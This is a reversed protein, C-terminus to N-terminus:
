IILSMIVKMNNSGGMKDYNGVSRVLYLDSDFKVQNGEVFLSGAPAFVKKIINADTLGWLQIMKQYAGQDTLDQVDCKVTSSDAWALSISGLVNTETATQITVTDTYWM